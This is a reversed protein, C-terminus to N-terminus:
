RFLDVTDTAVSSVESGRDLFPAALTTLNRLYVVSRPLNDFGLPVLSRDREAGRDDPRSRNKEDFMDESMVKPNATPLTHRHVSRTAVVARPHRASPDTTAAM